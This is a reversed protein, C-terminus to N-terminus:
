PSMPSLPQTTPQTSAVLYSNGTHNRSLYISYSNEPIEKKQYLAQIVNTSKIEGPDQGLGFIGDEVGPIRNTYKTVQGFVIQPENTGLGGLLDEGLYGTIDGLDFKSGNKVYTKSKASDFTHHRLCAATYQCEKSSVYFDSYQTDILLDFPQGPTGLTLQSRLFM